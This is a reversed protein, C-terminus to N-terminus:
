RSLRHAILLGKFSLPYMCKEHPLVPLSSSFFAADTSSKNYADSGNLKERAGSGVARSFNMSRFKPPDAM